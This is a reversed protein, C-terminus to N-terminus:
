IFNFKNFQVPVKIKLKLSQIKFKFKSNKLTFFKKFTFKKSNDCPLHLAAQLWGILKTPPYLV